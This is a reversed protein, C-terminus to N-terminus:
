RKMDNYGTSTYDQSNKRNKDITKNLNSNNINNNSNNNDNTM